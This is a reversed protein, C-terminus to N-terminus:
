RALYFYIDTPEHKPRKKEYSEYPLKEFDKIIKLLDKKSINGISYRARKYKHPRVKTNFGLSTILGKGSREKKKKSESSTIKIKDLSDFELSIDM